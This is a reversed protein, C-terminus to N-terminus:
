NRPIQTLYFYQDAQFLWDLPNSGEFPLLSIKSTVPPHHTNPILPPHHKHPLTTKSLTPYNPISLNISHIMNNQLSTLASKCLRWKHRSNKMLTRTNKLSPPCQSLCCFCWIICTESCLQDGIRAPSYEKFFLYPLRFILIFIPISIRKKQSSM